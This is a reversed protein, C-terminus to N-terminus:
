TPSSAQQEWFLRSLLHGEGGNIRKPPTAIRIGWCGAGDKHQDCEHIGYRCAYVVIVSELEWGVTKGGRAAHM